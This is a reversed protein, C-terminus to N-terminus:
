RLPRSFVTYFDAVLAAGLATMVLWWKSGKVAAITPFVVTAFLVGVFTFKGISSVGFLTDGIGGHIRIAVGLGLCLVGICGLLQPVRWSNKSM